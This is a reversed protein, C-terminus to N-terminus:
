GMDGTCRCEAIATLELPFVVAPPQTLLVSTLSLIESTISPNMRVRFSGEAIEAQTPGLQLTQEALLPVSPSNSM